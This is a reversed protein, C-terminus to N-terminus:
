GLDLLCGIFTIGRQEGGEPDGVGELQEESDPASAYQYTRKQPGHNRSPPRRNMVAPQAYM